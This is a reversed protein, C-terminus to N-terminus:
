ECHSLALGLPLRAPVAKKPPGSAAPGEVPQLRLQRPDGEGVDAQDLQGVVDVSSWAM